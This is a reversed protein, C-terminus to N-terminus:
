IAHRNKNHKTKLEVGGLRGLLMLPPFTWGDTPVYTRVYTWIDTRGCSTKGIEIFNPIYGSTSSHHVLRNATHGSGLDLDRPKQLELFQVKRPRDAGGNVIAAPL